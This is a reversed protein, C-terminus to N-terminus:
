RADKTSGPLALGAARGRFSGPMGVGVLIKGRSLAQSAQLLTASSGGVTREWPSRPPLGWATPRTPSLASNCLCLSSELCFFACLQATQEGVPPPQQHPKFRHQGICQRLQQHLRLRCCLCELHSGQQVWLLGSRQLVVGGPVASVARSLCHPCPLTLPNFSASQPGM